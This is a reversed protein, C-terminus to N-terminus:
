DPPLPVHTGPRRGPRMTSPNIPQWSGDQMPKELKWYGNPYQETAEMVRVRWGAPVNAPPMQAPNTPAQFNPSARPLGRTSNVKGGGFLGQTEALLNGTFRAVEVALLLEAAAKWFPEAARLEMQNQTRALAQGLLAHLELGPCGPCLGFPDSFNVPDGNAFGYLNLGGALGIESWLM